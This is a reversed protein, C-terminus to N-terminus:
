GASRICRLSRGGAHNARRRRARAAGSRVPGPQRRTSRAVPARRRYPRDGRRSGGTGHDEDLDPWRQSVAGARWAGSRDAAAPLRDGSSRHPRRDAPDVGAGQHESSDRDHGWWPGAAEPVAVVLM